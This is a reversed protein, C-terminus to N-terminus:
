PSAEMPLPERSLRHALRSLLMRLCRLRTLVTPLGAFSAASPVSPVHAWVQVLRIRLCREHLDRGIQVPLDSVAGEFRPLPQWTRPSQRLLVPHRGVCDGARKPPELALAQDPALPSPSGEYTIGDCWRGQRGRQAVEKADTIVDASEGLPHLSEFGAKSVYLTMANLYIRVVSLPLRQEHHGPPHQRLSPM